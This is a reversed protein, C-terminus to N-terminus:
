MAVLSATCVECSNYEGLNKEDQEVFDALSEGARGADERIRGEWNAEKSPHGSHGGKKNKISCRDRGFDLFHIATVM